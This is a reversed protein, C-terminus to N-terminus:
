LYSVPKIGLQEMIASLSVGRMQALKMMMELREAGVQEIHESLRILECHEDETLTEAERKAWLVQYRARVDADVKISEIKRLYFDEKNEM